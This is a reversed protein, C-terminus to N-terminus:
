KIVIRSTAEVGDGLIKVLYVGSDLDELPLEQPSEDIRGLAKSYMLRGSLSYVEVKSNEIGSYSLVEVSGNSVTPYVRLNNKHKEQNYVLEKVPVKKGNNNSANISRIAWGFSTVSQDSVLRFRIAITDNENFHDLLNISQTKFLEDNISPAPDSNYVETWDSFREADYIDLRKWEKLDSSGEITVYDYFQNPAPDFEVIAVDEYTFNKHADTVILPHRLVVKYETDNLYPHDRNNLVTKSVTENITNLAFEGGFTFVDSEEFTNISVLEEPQTFDIIVLESTSIISNNEENDIARLGVIHTGESLNELVYSFEIGQEINETIRDVEEGDLYVVIEKIDENNQVYNVVGDKNEVSEQHTKTITVPGYYVPPEYGELEELRATWVGRGHTAMVVQDNVIKMQWVSFAPAGELFAWNKGGDLTHFVGIDTGAWIINEDFPMEIVSHVAVDPFGRDENTSFGSIDEWTQGLDETKLIKAAGQSSFVAYARNKNTPSTEFDSLLYNHSNGERPDVFSGVPTFTEGNDTSVHMALFGSETMANGAWVVDPSAISVSMNLSSLGGSFSFNAPITTLKWSRGFNTSKWVGSASPSFLVNPNNNTNAIKSYFPSSGTSSEGHGAYYVEGNDFAVFSSFQAGGIFKNPDNYNWLSEFGDGGIIYRYETEQDAGSDTFSIWTGNDQAGAIYDDSGNRKDAGYFQTCNLGVTATSWDNPKTGPDRLYDTHYVGGDNALILKFNKGPFKTVWALGHQDVHVYDNLEGNYGAAIPQARYVLKTRKRGIKKIEVKNVIVGGTYFVNENFPHAMVVNDYWGQGSILNGESSEGEFELLTFTDGGNDTIYFDTSVATTALGRSTYVSVIVRDPNAPSVDLEFRSHNTNYDDKDLVLSWSFGGDISKIVGINKVGGYLTKFNTPDYNLDQVNGQDYTHEWTEGGDKTVYIGTSSAVILNNDDEPNLALRGVGGFDKTNELYEWSSGADLTKLVGVGGIADINGFPEGTGVYLREPNKQSITVTSTSLNPVKYDTLNEWSNGANKTVWVGGGVSGAYWTDPDNPAVTIGRVRGPVNVPGREKWEVTSSNKIKYSSKKAKQYETILYGRKYTSKEANIPKLINEKYDAIHEIGKKHEKKNKIKEFSPIKISEKIEKTNSRNCAFCITSLLVLLLLKKFYFKHTM